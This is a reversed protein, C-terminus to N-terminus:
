ILDLRPGFTGQDLIPQVIHLLLDADKFKDSFQDSDDGEINSLGEAMIGGHQPLPLCGIVNGGGGEEEGEKGM